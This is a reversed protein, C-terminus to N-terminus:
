CTKDPHGVGEEMPVLFLPFDCISFKINSELDKFHKFLFFVTLFLFFFDFLVSDGLYGKTPLPQNLQPKEVCDFSNQTIRFLYM